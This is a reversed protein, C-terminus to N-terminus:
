AARFPRPQIKQDLFQLAEPPVGALPLTMFQNIDLMLLWVQKFKWIQFIREWAFRSSASDTSVELAEDSLVFDARPEKMRALKASMGRWHMWGIVVIFILLAMLLGGYLGAIFGFDRAFVAFGIVIVVISIAATSMWTHEVTLARFLYSRVAARMTAPEYTVSFKYREAM